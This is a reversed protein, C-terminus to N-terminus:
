KGQMETLMSAATAALKHDPFRSMLKRLAARTRGMDGKSKFEDALAFLEGVAVKDLNADFAANAATQERASQEAANAKRSVELERQRGANALTALMAAETERVSPMANRIFAEAKLVHPETLQAAIGACSALVQPQPCFTKSAKLLDGKAFQAFYYIKFNRKGEAFGCEPFRVVDSACSAELLALTEAENSMSAGPELLMSRAPMAGQENALLTDDGRLGLGNMSIRQDGWSITWFSSKTINVRSPEVVCETGLFKSIAIRDATCEFQFDPAQLESEYKIFGFRKGRHAKMKETTISSSHNPAAGFKHVSRLLGPGQILGDVCAGSWSVDFSSNPSATRIKLVAADEVVSCGSDTKFLVEERQARAVGSFMFSAMLVSVFARVSNPM